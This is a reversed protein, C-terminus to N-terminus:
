AEAALNALVETSRAIFDNLQEAKLEKQSLLSLDYIHRTLEASLKPNKAKLNMIKSILVNNTNVVFKPKGLMSDPINQDSLAMYDRMRRMSEDFIVIGPVDDAALSKAEVEVEELKLLEKINNAITVAESRGDADLITKEREKDVLIDEAGGDVRQFKAPTMKQELRSMVASDIPHSSMLVEIEKQKYLKIISSSADSSMAYFIKEQYADKHKELYEEATLWEGDLNKWVLFPKCREYFKDDNLVGLKIIVEIDPWFKLFQERDSLYLNSLRDSVKKSIHQSLQRVTRDMQLHSRSVNLPIDPGDIAGKLVTLYDPFIEKCNDSVFVRNSYLKINSSNPDFRQSLKPFYLIGKLHFPYDVNLHIWFIPDPDMPYLERYFNLYDEDKCESPQKMWLPDKDNIRTEGLYIPFPLYSCYKNLIEGIRGEELYEASDDSVFLTITTGPTTREGKKMTYSAGGDCSWLASESGEKHSLTDIEVKSSVMFSSYFGLGFHGIMQEGEEKSKYKQVFEEAGSFALQAIYKEVEEAMMGIGNDSFTLTKKEKDIAIDIRFDIQTEPLEKQEQLIKIKQIADCSNSVLERVFIDHDSYLWKKLIPLINESHIKLKKAAM